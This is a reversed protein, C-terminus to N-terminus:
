RWSAVLSALRAQAGHAPKGHGSVALDLELQALREISRRAERRDMTTVRLPEKFRPGTVLADGAVLTTGLKFSTHGPTHGPTAISEVGAITEGPAFWHDVAVPRPPGVLAQALRPPPGRRRGITWEVVQRDPEPAWVEAGLERRLFDCSGVHDPDGHTILITKPDFDQAHLEALLKPGARPVGTDVLVLEDAELLYASSAPGAHEFEWLGEALRRMGPIRVPALLQRARVPRSSKPSASAVLRSAVSRVTNSPIAFGAGNTDSSNSEIQSTIRIVEGRM